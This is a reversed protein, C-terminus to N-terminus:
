RLARARARTEWGLFPVIFGARRSARDCTARATPEGRTFGIARTVSAAAPRTRRANMPRVATASAVPPPPAPAEAGALAGGRAAPGEADAAEGDGEPPDAEMAAVVSDEALGRVGADDSSGTTRLVALASSRRRRGPTPSFRAFAIRV